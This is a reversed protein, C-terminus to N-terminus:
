ETAPIGVTAEERATEWGRRWRRRDAKSNGERGKDKPGVRIRPENSPHPDNMDVDHDLGLRPCASLCEAGCTVNPHSSQVTQGEDESRASYAERRVCGKGM